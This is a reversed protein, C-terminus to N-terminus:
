VTLLVCRFGGKPSATGFGVAEQRLGVSQFQCTALWDAALGKEQEMFPRIAYFFQSNCYSHQLSPLSSYM